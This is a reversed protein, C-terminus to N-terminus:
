RENGSYAPSPAASFAPAEPSDSDRSIVFRPDLPENAAGPGFLAFDYKAPDLPDLIRCQATLQTASKWDNAKRKLLGLARAQRGSHVDLPLVLLHRPIRTWIGLDVPGPRVMWRLFMCLRKCASGSEPRALHKQLRPPTDPLASMVSESFFQIAPGVDAADPDVGELVQRDFDVLM